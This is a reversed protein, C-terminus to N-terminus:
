QGTAGTFQLAGLQVERLEALTIASATWADLAAYVQRQYGRPVKRWDPWCMLIGVKISRGCALCKGM